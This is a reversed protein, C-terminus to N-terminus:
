LGLAVLGMTQMLIQHYEKKLSKKLISGILCGALIMGVNFVTGFM